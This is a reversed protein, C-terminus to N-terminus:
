HVRDLAPQDGAADAPDRHKEEDLRFRTGQAPIALQQMRKAATLTYPLTAGFCRGTM